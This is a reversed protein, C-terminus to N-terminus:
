RYKGKEYDEAFRKAHGEEVWVMYAKEITKIEREEKFDRVQKHQIGQRRSYEEEEMIITEHGQIEGFTFLKENKKLNRLALGHHIVLRGKKDFWDMEEKPIKEM